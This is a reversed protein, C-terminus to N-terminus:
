QEGKGPDEGRVTSELPVGEAGRLAANTLWRSAGALRRARACRGGEHGRALLLAGTTKGGGSAGCLALRALAQQQKAKPDGLFKEIMWYVPTMDGTAALAFRESETINLPPMSSM